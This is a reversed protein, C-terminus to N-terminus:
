NSISSALMGLRSAMGYMPYSLLQAYLPDSAAARYAFVRTLLCPSLSLSLSLRAYCGSLRTLLSFSLSPPLSPSLLSLFFSLSLSFCFLSPPAVYMICRAHMNVYAHISVHMCRCRYNALLVMTLRSGQICHCRYNALLVMPLMSGQQVM